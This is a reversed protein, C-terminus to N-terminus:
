RVSQQVVDASSCMAVCHLLRSLEAFHQWRLSMHCCCDRSHLLRHMGAAPCDPLQSRCRAPKMASASDETRQGASSPVNLLLQKATYAVTCSHVMLPSCTIYLVAQPQLWAIVDTLLLWNVSAQDHQFLWKGPSISGGCRCCCCTALLCSQCSARVVNCM